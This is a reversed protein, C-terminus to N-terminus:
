QLLPVPSIGPPSGRESGRGDDGAAGDGSLALNSWPRSRKLVSNFPRLDECSPLPNYLTFSSAPTRGPRGTASGAGRAVLALHAPGVGGGAGREAEM